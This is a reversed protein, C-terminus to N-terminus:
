DLLWTVIDPFTLIFICCLDLPMCGSFCFVKEYGVFEENVIYGSVPKIITASYCLRAQNELKKVVRAPYKKMIESSLFIGHGCFFAAGM